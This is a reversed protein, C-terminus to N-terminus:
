RVTFRQTVTFREVDNSFLLTLEMARDPTFLFDYTEGVGLARIESPQLVRLAAPLDAGDKSVPIWALAHDPTALKVAVPAAPLINIIRLRYTTGARLTLVPPEAHGNIARDNRGGTVARGIMFTLDTAPDFAAGPELVILPGYSGTILQTGEDMHTHYIFTGARPPTFSVTFSDGPVIFPALNSGAGSWGAVGDFVSELEMGHWHVTTMEDSRNVVTIATTEGRTLLLPPGPTMVSDARPEAGHQLVYGSARLDPQAAPPAQQVLLRLHRAPEVRSSTQAGPSADFSHIGLVLGAMGQVPHRAVDHVDHHRSSDPRVPYPTIHPAMHCHFLWNGARTPTWEMAFTSGPRMFETVVDRVHDAAYTTDRSGNGKATVRFHFGHLHMPHPLYSGNVFRWRVVSGVPYELRETYPWARGNIALEWIDEHPPPKTTDPVIDIVTMVFIREDPDPAAGRPDIVVAGTLQADRGGRQGVAMGTTTGWYLYTGPAGATFEVARREGRRVHITDDVATGARLGHVVLDPLGTANTVSVRVRTGEAARLLPGPIRPAGGREAFAFVTVNSDVDLDPKWAAPRAILDLTVVAAEVSGGPVRNDNPLVEDLARFHVAALAVPLACWLPVVLRRSAKL